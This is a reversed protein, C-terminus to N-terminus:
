YCDNTEELHIIKENNEYNYEDKYKYICTNTINDLYYDYYCRSCRYTDNEEIYKVSQCNM